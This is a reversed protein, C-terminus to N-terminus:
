RHTLNGSASRSKKLTSTVTQRKAEEDYSAM